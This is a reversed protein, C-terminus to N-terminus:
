CNGLSNKVPRGVPQARNTPSRGRVCRGTSFRRSRCTREIRSQSRYLYPGAYEARRQPNKHSRRVHVEALRVDSQRHCSFGPGLEIQARRGGSSNILLPSMVVDVCTLCTRRVLRTAGDV